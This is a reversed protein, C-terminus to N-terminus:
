SNTLIYCPTTPISTSQMVAKRYDLHYPSHKTASSSKKRAASTDVTPVHPPQVPTSLSDATKGSGFENGASPDTMDHDIDRYTLSSFRNTTPPLNDCPVPRDMTIRCPQETACLYPQKSIPISSSKTHKTYLHQVVCAKRGKM